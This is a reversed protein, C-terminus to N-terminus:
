RLMSRGGKKGNSKGRETNFSKGSQTEGKTKWNSDLLKKGEINLSFIQAITQYFGLNTSM